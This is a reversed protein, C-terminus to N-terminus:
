SEDKRVQSLVSSMECRVGDACSLSLTQDTVPSGPVACWLSRALIDMMWLKHRMEIRSARLVLWLSCRKACLPVM